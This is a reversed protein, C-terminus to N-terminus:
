QGKKTKAKAVLESSSQIKGGHGINFIMEIGLQECLAYEPINDEKRDGGNAFIDPKLHGLERCVSRWVPDDYNGDPEHGTIMVDDVFSYAAIIEAREMEPMFAFGKKVVLWNDNNLIVVLKDGLKKAQQFMRVHGIHLPDFGGSVAVVKQMFNTYM